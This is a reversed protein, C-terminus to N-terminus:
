VYLDFATEGERDNHTRVTTTRGNGDLSMYGDFDMSM